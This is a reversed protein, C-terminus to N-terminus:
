FNIRLMECKMSPLYTDKSSKEWIGVPDPIEQHQNFSLIIKNVYFMEHALILPMM